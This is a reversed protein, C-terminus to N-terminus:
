KKQPKKFFLWKCVTLIHCFKNCKKEPWGSFIEFSLYLFVFWAHFVENFNFNKLSGVVHIHFLHLSFKLLFLESIKIASTFNSLMSIYSFYKVRLIRVCMYCMCVTVYLCTNHARAMKKSQKRDNSNEYLIVLLGRIWM